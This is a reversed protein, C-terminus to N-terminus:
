DLNTRLDTIFLHASHSSFGWYHTRLKLLKEVDVPFRIAYTDDIWLAVHDAKLMLRYRYKRGLAFKHELPLFLKSQAQGAAMYDIRIDQGGQVSTDGAWPAVILYHEGSSRTMDNSQSFLGIRFDYVANGITRGEISMSFEIVGGVRLKQPSWGYAADAQSDTETLELVNKKKKWDGTPFTWNKWSVEETAVERDPRLNKTSIHSRLTAVANQLAANPDNKYQVDDYFLVTLGMLDSPIKVSKAIVAFARELGISSMFLGLELLVNDRAALFLQGRSSVKDDPSFVFVAFDHAAAEKILEPLAYKGLAFLDPRYWPKVVAVTNLEQILHDVLPRVESSSGIFVSPKM